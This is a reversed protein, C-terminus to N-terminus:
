HCTLHGDNNWALKSTCQGLVLTNARWGGSKTKCEAFIRSGDWNLNRCSQIWSGGLLDAYGGCVLHGNLNSAGKACPLSLQTWQPYKNTDYCRAELISGRVKAETCSLSWSGGPMPFEPGCKLIGDVNSISPCKPDLALSTGTLLGNKQQCVAILTNNSARVYANFCTRSWSGPPLQTRKRTCTLSGNSNNISGKECYDFDDLTTPKWTGSKNRCQGRMWLKTVPKEYWTTSWAELGMCSNQYSGAPLPLSNDDGGTPGGAALSSSSLMLFGILTCLLIRM